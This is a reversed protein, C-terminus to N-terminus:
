MMLPSLSIRFMVYSVSSRKGGEAAYTEVERGSYDIFDPDKLRSYVVSIEVVCRRSTRDCGRRPTTQSSNLM